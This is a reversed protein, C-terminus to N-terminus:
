MEGLPREFYYHYPDKILFEEAAEQKNLAATVPLSIVFAVAQLATGIFGLPRVWLVDGVINATREFSSEDAFGPASFSLVTFLIMMSIITKKM